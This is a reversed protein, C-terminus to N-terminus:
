GSMGTLDIAERPEPDIARPTFTHYGQPPNAPM